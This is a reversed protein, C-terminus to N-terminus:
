LVVEDNDFTDYGVITGSLRFDYQKGIEIAQDWDDRDAAKDKFYALTIHMLDPPEGGDIKIANAINIPVQLAFMAGQMDAEAKKAIPKYDHRILNELEPREDESPYTYWGITGDNRILGM